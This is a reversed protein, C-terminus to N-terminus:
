HARSRGRRARSQREIEDVIRLTRRQRRRLGRELGVVPAHEAFAVANHEVMQEREGVHRDLPEAGHQRDLALEVAIQMQQAVCM